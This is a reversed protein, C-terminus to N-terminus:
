SRDQSRVPAEYTSGWQAKVVVVCKLVPAAYGTAILEKKSVLYKGLEFREREPLRFMKDLGERPFM